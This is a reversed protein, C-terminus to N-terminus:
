LFNYIVIILTILFLVDLLKLKGDTNWDLYSCVLM